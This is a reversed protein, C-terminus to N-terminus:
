PLFLSGTLLLATLFLLLYYRRPYTQQVIRGIANGFPLMALVLTATVFVALIKLNAAVLPDLVLNSVGFFEGMPSIGALVLSVYGLLVGTGLSVTVAVGMKEKPPMGRMKVEGPIILIPLPGQFQFIIFNLVLNLVLLTPEVQLKFEQSTAQIIKSAMYGLSVIPLVLVTLTALSVVAGFGVLTPWSTMLTLGQDQVLQYAWLAYVAVVMALCALYAMLNQRSFGVHSFLKTLPNRRATPMPVSWYFSRVTETRTPLKPSPNLIRTTSQILELPIQLQKPQDVPVGFGTFRSHAQSAPRSQTTTKEEGTMEVLKTGDFFCFNVDNPYQNGCEPCKMSPKVGEEDPQHGDPPPPPTEDNSM